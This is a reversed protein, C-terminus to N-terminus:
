SFLPTIAEPTGSAGMVYFGLNCVANVSGRGSASREITISLEEGAELAYPVMFHQHVHNQFALWQQALMTHNDGALNIHNNMRVQIGDAKDAMIDMMHFIFVQNNPCLQNPNNAHGRGVGVHIQVSDTIVLPLGAVAKTSVFLSGVNQIHSGLYMSMNCHIYQGILVPALGNLTVDVISEDNNEDVMWLRIALIDAADLSVVYFDENNDLTDPQLEPELVDEGFFSVEGDTAVLNKIEETWM